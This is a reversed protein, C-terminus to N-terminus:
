FILLPLGHQAEGKPSHGPVEHASLLPATINGPWRLSMLVAPGAITQAALHFGQGVGM